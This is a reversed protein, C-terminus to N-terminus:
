AESMTMIIILQRKGLYDSAPAFPSASVDIAEEEDDV